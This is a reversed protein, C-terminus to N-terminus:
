RYISSELNLVCHLAPVPDPNDCRAHHGNCADQGQGYDETAGSSGQASRALLGGGASGGEVLQAEVAGSGGAVFHQTRRRLEAVSHRELALEIKARRGAKVGVVKLPGEFLTIARSEFQGGRPQNRRSNGYTPRM